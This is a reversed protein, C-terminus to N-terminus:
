QISGCEGCSIPTVCKVLQLGIIDPIELKVLSQTIVLFGM